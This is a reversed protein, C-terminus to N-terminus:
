GSQRSFQDFLASQAEFVWESMITEEPVRLAAAIRRADTRGWRAIEDLTRVGEAYLREQTAEDISSITTLDDTKVSAASPSEATPEPTGKPGPASFFDDSSSFTPEAIGPMPEPSAPAAEPRDPRAVWTPEAPPPPPSARSPLPLLDDSSLAAPSWEELDPAVPEPAEDADAEPAFSVPEFTDVEFAPEVDEFSPGAPEAGLLDDALPSAGLDAPEAPTPSLSVDSFSIDPFSDGASDPLPRAVDSTFPAAGFEVNEFAPTDPEPAAEFADLSITEFAPEESTPAEFTPHEDFSPEEFTPEDVDMEPALAGLAPDASALEDFSPEEFTPEEFSPGDLAPDAFTPTEFSPEEFTPEEFTPAPGSSPVFPDMPVAEFGPAEPAPPEPAPVDWPAEAAPEPASAPPLAAHVPGAEPLAITTRITSIERRIESMEADRRQVEHRFESRLGTVQVKQDDLSHRVADLKQALLQRQTEGQLRQEAMAKEIQDGISRVEEAVTQPAAMSALNSPDAEMNEIFRARLFYIATGGVIFAGVLVALVIWLIAM